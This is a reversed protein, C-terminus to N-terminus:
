LEALEEWFDATEYGMRWIAIGGTQPHRGRLMELKAAVARRDQFYVVHEVGNGGRCTFFAEGSEDRQISAGCSQAIGAAEAYSLDVIGASSWDRGYFPVGMRIKGPAVQTEAFALVQDAWAPPSIPGPSSWSFDYTMIKFEDVAAGLRAYDQAQAGEWDGPESTKAHVAISLAKGRRRLAGALEEVFASYADRDAAFMLEWDLDVGDYGREECLRVISEIHTLRLGADRLIASALQPDFGHNLDFNNVTVSIRIGCARAAGIFASDDAFAQLGGDARAGYWAFAAQDIASLSCAGHLSELDGLTWAGVSLGSSSSPSGGSGGCSILAACVLLALSPLCRGPM